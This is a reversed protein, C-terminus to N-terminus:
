AAQASDLHSLDNLLRARPGDTSLDLVTVATNDLTLDQMRHLTYDPLMSALLVRLLRGHTVVLVSGTPHLAQIQAIARRARIEVDRPSEGGTVALDFDGEEWRAVYRRYTARVEESAPSGEYRGWDMEDLDPLASPILDPRRAVLPAATQHTRRLSSTFLADFREAALREALREAQWRGLENLDSDIGRGQVRQTANYDTQGHRVLTLTLVPLARLVACDVVIKRDIGSPGCM